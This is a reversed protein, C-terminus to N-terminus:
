KFYEVIIDCIFKQTEEDLESHMPLSLVENSLQITNTCDGVKSPHKLFAKQQHLPVPYYVGNPVKHQDLAAKVGDRHNDKIKLTFQHYVHNSYSEETPLVIQPIDELASKYRQAATYRASNYEDLHRLKVNLISAQISDLRSNVGIEDHYYRTEMGHNAIIRIKHALDDSNTFLAGGDGYAGLNKSPFFSTCGIDGLGGLKVAKHDSSYSAGIAQANDEIVLLQHRQAIDLIETMPASQGFLHVPIIAKTKDTILSEIQQPLINFNHYDVDAFVPVMGLLSIVEATAIFTFDPVIIESGLPLEAAMIAIQLADTGNACAIVHKVGLYSALNNEFSKVPQGHIFQTSELCDMIATDVESKIKLYQSKLDVMQINKM